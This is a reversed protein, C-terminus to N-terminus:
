VNKKISINHYLWSELGSVEILCVDTTPAQQKESDSATM